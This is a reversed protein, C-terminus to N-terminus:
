PALADLVSLAYTVAEDPDVGPFGVRHSLNLDVIVETVGQSRLSELDDVIQRRTGQFPRRGPRKVDLLDVVGRAVIRLADPDRRADIAAQRVVGISAGVAAASQESAAIWGQAMSGARRLARASAGGLLIPPHPRQRPQPGVHAEPVSYFDGAFDVPDTTWLAVLCRLYEEMRAGRRDFPVGAAAYEEPLWGMGLGATLRGASMVDLSSLAKALLAPAVFPACITATGLAINTTLASVYSLTVLPDQVDRHSPSLGSGPPWLVRQFTWLSAYGLDEARKSVLSVTRPTAWQGAVPVGFGILPLDDAM